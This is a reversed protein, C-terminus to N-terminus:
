MSINMFSNDPTSEEKLIEKIELLPKEFVLLAKDSSLALKALIDAIQNTESPVYRLSWKGQKLLILLGDLIVWLEVVMFSCKGLFRNYGFIWTGKGDRIVGSATSFSSSSYVVGDINLYVCM